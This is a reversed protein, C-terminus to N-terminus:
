RGKNQYNLKISTVDANDTSVEISAHELVEKLAPVMVELIPCILNALHEVPDAKKPPRLATCGTMKEVWGIATRVGAMTGLRKPIPLKQYAGLGLGRLKEALPLLDDPSQVEDISSQIGSPLKPLTKKVMVFMESLCADTLNYERGELMIRM